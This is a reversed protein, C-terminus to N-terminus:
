VVLKTTVQPASINLGSDNAAMAQKDESLEALTTEMAVQDAIELDRATLVGDHDHDLVEFQQKIATLAESSFGAARLHGRMFEAETVKGDFDEDMMLLQKLTVHQTRHAIRFDHLKQFTSFLVGLAMPIYFICFIQGGTSTPKLDGYGVTLLTICSFYLSESASWGEFPGLLAGLAIYGVVPLSIRFMAQVLTRPKSYTTGCRGVCAADTDAFWKQTRGYWRICCLVVRSLGRQTNALGMKMRELHKNAEARQKYRRDRNREAANQTQKVMQRMAAQDLKRKQEAMWHGVEEIAFMVGLVGVFAYVITFAKSGDSTPTLDGYGITTCTVVAFYVCQVLSWGEEKSYYLYGVAYYALIVLVAWVFGMHQKCREARKISARKQEKAAEIADEAEALVSAAVWAAFAAANAAEAAAVAARRQTGQEPAKTSKRM